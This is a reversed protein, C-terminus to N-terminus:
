PLSKKMNATTIVKMIEGSLKRLHIRVLIFRSKGGSTNAFASYTDWFSNPVGGAAKKVELNIKESENLIETIDIM